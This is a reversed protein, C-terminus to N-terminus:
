GLYPEGPDCEAGDNQLHNRFSNSVNKIGECSMRCALPALPPSTAVCSIDGGGRPLFCLLLFIISMIPTNMSLWDASIRSEGHIIYFCGNILCPYGHIIWPNDMSWGHCPNDMAIWLYDKSMGPNEHAQPVPRAHQPFQGARKPLCRMGQVSLLFGKLCAQNHFM